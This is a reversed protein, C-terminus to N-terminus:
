SIVASTLTYELAGMCSMSGYAVLPEAYKVLLAKNPVTNETSAGNQIVLYQALGSNENSNICFDLKRVPLKENKEANAGVGNYAFSFNENLTASQAIRLNKSSGNYAPALVSLTSEQESNTAFNRLAFLLQANDIATKFTYGCTEEEIVTDSESTLEKKLYLEDHQYVTTYKYEVNAFEAQSGSVYALHINAQTFSYIPAFSHGAPLFYTETTITDNDFTKVTDDKLTYSASVTFTTQLLYVPLNKAQVGDEGLIDSDPLTEPYNSLQFTSVFTGNFSINKLANDILSTKTLSPYNEQDNVYKVDYTLTEKYPMSPVGEAGYFASSFSIPTTPNCSCGSLPVALILILSLLTIIFKRM